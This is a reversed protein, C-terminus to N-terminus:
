PVLDSIELHRPGVLAETALHRPDVIAQRATAETEGNISAEPRHRVPRQQTLDLVASIRIAKIVLATSPCIRVELVHTM